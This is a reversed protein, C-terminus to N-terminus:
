VVSEDQASDSDDKTREVAVVECSTSCGNRQILSVVKAIV